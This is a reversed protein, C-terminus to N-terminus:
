EGETPLSDKVVYTFKNQRGVRSFDSYECFEVRLEEPFGSRLASEVNKWELDSDCAVLIRSIDGSETTFVQFDTAKTKASLIDQIYQTTIERSGIRVVEHVRGRIGDLFIGDVSERVSSLDGTSYNILPFCKNNLGTVVLAEDTTSGPQPYGDVWVHTDIVRMSDYSNKFKTLRNAIVTHAIIGFEANGYRNAIRCRFRAEILDRQHKELTEGTSVFTEFAGLDAEHEGSLKQAIAYMQSPLAQVIKPKQSKIQEWIKILQDRDLHAMELSSRNSALKRLAEVRNSRKDGHDPIASSIHIQRDGLQFGVWEQSLATVAASLDLAVPDYYVTMNAGTSGNTRSQHLRIADVYPSSILRSGSEMVDAKTLIPIDRLYRPDALILEPDFKMKGLMDAYYPVTAKAFAVLNALKKRNQLKREPWSLNMANRLSAHQELVYRGSINEFAAYAARSVYKKFIGAMANM